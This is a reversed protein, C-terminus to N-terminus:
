STPSTDTDTEHKPRVVNWVLGTMELGRIIWWSMDFDWWRHGHRASRQDAHHNNHWGEGHSLLAVLWNNRSADGTDYNQYGFTHSLSNVSWTGHLVFVTRVFVGWVLWSMGLLWGDTTTGAGWCGVVFGALLFLLAHAVYVGLWFANRELRLYFPQRLLDRAYREYSNIDKHDRNIYLLWGVHGWLFSVLPSHPDPQEDSHKHHQRHVAVWRAPSDQLTCIGLIALTYEFWKPCQFGQHTLLRHYGITIGMMGFTFHGLVGLVLGSWSFFQPVLALLALVHIIALPIAYLWYFTLPQATEPADLRNPPGTSSEQVSVNQVSDVPAPESPSTSTSMSVFERPEDGRCDFYWWTFNDGILTAVM